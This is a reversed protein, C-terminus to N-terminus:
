QHRRHADYGNKFSNLSPACVVTSPLSNWLSFVRNSFFHQRTATKFNEKKLKHEHGRLRPDENRAFLSSLDVSFLSNVIRYTTIMDGRVKRNEFTDLQAMRMRVEYSPRNNGRFPLRTARRQVSELANKDRVLEACWVPGAFELIPRVYCKYLGVFADFSVERFAKKLLYLTSNARKCISSIHSSWSLDETIVVGLDVHNRVTRLQRDVMRYPLHPNNKGMHLVVCKDINLPLMWDHCWKEIARLDEQLQSYASLPSAYLKADDAYFSCRSKIHHILDSSYLLFLLPGLVSGQPVGSLSRRPESFSDGVRVSFSRDSVFASILKLLNGRIGFHELKHLLRHLPVKDFAKTFDLYVIDVPIKADLCLSWDNVCTLLNTVISRGPVFGHQERPIIGRDLMFTRIKESIISEMIKCAISTLSIPRYNLPDLKNGKKFIPTVSAQLWQTPLRSSAFCSDMIISLPLCVLDACKKFFCATLGDLGPASESRLKFIYKKIDEQRFTLDCLSESIRPSRVSPYSAPPDEVTFVGSFTESFLEAVEENSVCMSGDPKQLLPTQVSSKLARRIHKYIRKRNPDEVVTNEYALRAHRICESVEQSYQRHHRYDKDERTRRFKRWLRRKNKIMQLINSTIWPKLTNRFVLKERTHNQLCLSINSQFVQWLRDPDNSNLMQVWDVSELERAVAQYDTIKVIHNLTKEIPSDVYFQMSFTVTVHDSKGIPPGIEYPTLLNPDNTLLLDLISPQQGERYRTYDTIIQSLNSRQILDVFHTSANVPEVSTSIPWSIDSFNFDGLLVFNDNRSLQEIKSFLLLDHNLSTYRPRYVCALTTKFNRCSIQLAVTDVEPCSFEIETVSFKSLIENKVYICM